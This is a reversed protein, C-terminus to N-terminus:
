IGKVIFPNAVILGSVFCVKLKDRKTSEFEYNPCKGDVKSIEMKKFLIFHIVKGILYLFTCAFILSNLKPYVTLEGVFKSIPNFLGFIILLTLLIIYTFGIIAIYAGYWPVENKFRSYYLFFVYFFKYLNIM